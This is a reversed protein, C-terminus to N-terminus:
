VVFGALGFTAWALLAAAPIAALLSILSQRAEQRSSTTMAPSKHHASPVQQRGYM